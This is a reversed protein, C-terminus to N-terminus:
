AHPTGIDEENVGQHVHRPDNWSDKTVIVFLGIYFGEPPDGPLFNRDMSRLSLSLIYYFFM